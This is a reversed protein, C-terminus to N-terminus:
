MQLYFYAEVVMGGELRMWVKKHAKVFEEAQPPM